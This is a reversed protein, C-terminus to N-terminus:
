SAPRRLNGGGAAHDVGVDIVNAIAARIAQRHRQILQIHGGATRRHRLSRIHRRNDRRLRHNRRRSIAATIAAASRRRPMRRRSTRRRNRPLRIGAPVAALVAEVAAEAARACASRSLPMPPMRHRAAHATSVAIGREAAICRLSRTAGAAPGSPSAGPRRTGSRRCRRLRPPMQRLSCDCFGGRM